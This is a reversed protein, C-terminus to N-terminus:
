KYMRPWWSRTRGPTIRPPPLPLFSSARLRKAAGWSATAHRKTRKTRKENSPSYGRIVPAGTSNRTQVTAGHGHSAVRLSPRSYFSQLQSILGSCDSSPLGTCSRFIHPGRRREEKGWHPSPWLTELHVRYVAVVKRRAPAGDHPNSISGLHHSPGCSPLSSFIGAIPLRYTVSNRPRESYSVFVCM